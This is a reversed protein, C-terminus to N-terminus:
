AVRRMWARMLEMECAAEGAVPYREAHKRARAYIEQARAVDGECQLAYAIEVRLHALICQARQAFARTEGGYVRDVAERSEEQVMMMYARECDLELVYLRPLRDRHAQMADLEAQAGSLDGEDLARQYRMQRLTLSFLDEAGSDLAYLADPLERPRKGESLLGNVSLQAAFARRAAKSRLLVYLNYGDNPVGADLPVVNVLAIVLGLAGFIVGFTGGWAFGAAACLLNALAGGLNYCVFPPHAVHQPPMMLCQGATGPISFRRLAWQGGTRVLTWSGIRFSVFRYGTLLGAVMHGAEHLLIHAYASLGIYILARAFSLLQSGAEDDAAIRMGGWFGAVGGAMALFMFFVAPKWRRKM